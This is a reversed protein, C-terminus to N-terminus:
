LESLNNSGQNENNIKIKLYNAKINELFDKRWKEISFHEIVYAHGQYNPNWNKVLSPISDSLKEFTEIKHTYPFDYTWLVQLNFYLAEFISLSESDHQTYRIFFKSRQYFEPMKNREVRPSIMINKPMKEVFDPPVEKLDACILLFKYNHWRNALKLLKDGGYFDFRNFPVYSLFDIDKVHNLDVLGLKYPDITTIPLYTAHIHLKSLEDVLWPAGAFTILGGKKIKWHFICDQITNYIRNMGRQHKKDMEDLVDSGIWHNIILPEKKIWLLFNKRISPGKGFVWYIIDSQIFDDSNLVEFSNIASLSDRVVETVYEDGCVSIRLHKDM